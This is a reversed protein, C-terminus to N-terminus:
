NDNMLKRLEDWRSNDGSEKEVLHEKLKQLM